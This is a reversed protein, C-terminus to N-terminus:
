TDPYSPQFTLDQSLPLLPYPLESPAKSWETLAASATAETGNGGGCAVVSMGMVAVALLAAVRKALKNKM